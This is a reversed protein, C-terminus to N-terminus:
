PAGAGAHEHFAVLAAGDTALQTAWDEGLQAVFTEGTASGKDVVLLVSPIGTNPYAGSPLGILAVVRVTELLHDRYRSATGSRMTWGLPLHIVARGGPKLAKLVLDVSAVDGDSTDGVGEIRYPSALRLGAPPDTVIFDAVGHVGATFSDTSEVTIDYPSVDALARALDATERNIEAGHLEVAREDAV